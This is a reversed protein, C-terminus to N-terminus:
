QAYGTPSGTCYTCQTYSCYVNGNDMALDVGGLAITGAPDEPLLARQEDSLSERYDLDHWARIIDVNSM